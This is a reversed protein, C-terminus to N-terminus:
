PVSRKEAKVPSAKSLHEKPLCALLSFCHHTPVTESRYSHGGTGACAHACLRAHERLLDRLQERPM